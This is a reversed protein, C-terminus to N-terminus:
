FSNFVGNQETMAHQVSNNIYPCIRSFVSCLFPFLKLFIDFNLIQNLVTNEMQCSCTGVDDVDYNM